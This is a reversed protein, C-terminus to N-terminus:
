TKTRSFDHQYLKNYWPVCNFLSLLMSVYRPLTHSMPGYAPYILSITDKAPVPLPPTLAAPLAASASGNMRGATGTPSTPSGSPGQSQAKRQQAQLKQVQQLQQVHQHHKHEAVMALRGALEVTEWSNGGVLAISKTPNKKSMTLSEAGADGVLVSYLDHPANPHTLDVVTQELDCDADVYQPNFPAATSGVSILCNQFRVRSGDALEIIKHVQDINTAQNQEFVLRKDQQLPFGIKKFNAIPDVILVTDTPRAYKLLEQTASSGATGFGLIVHTYHTCLNSEGRSRHSNTSHKNHAREERDCMTVFSSLVLGKAATLYSLQRLYSMEPLLHTIQYNLRVLDNSQIAIIGVNPFKSTLSIINLFEECSSHLRLRM